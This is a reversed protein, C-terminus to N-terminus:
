FQPRPLRIRARWRAALLAGAGIALLGAASPEPVVADLVSYYFGGGVDEFASLKDLEFQGSLSTVRVVGQLDPWPLPSNPNFSYGRGVEEFPPVPGIYTYSDTYFPSESTSNSFFEVSVTWNQGPNGGAFYLTATPPYNQAPGTYPLTFDFVYSSGPSLLVASFAALQTAFLVIGAILKM